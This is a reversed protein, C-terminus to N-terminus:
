IGQERRWAEIEEPTPPFDGGRDEILKQVADEDAKALDEAQKRAQDLAATVAEPKVTAAFSRSTLVNLADMQRGLIEVHQQIVTIAGLTSRIARLEQHLMLLASVLAPDLGPPLEIAEGGSARYPSGGAGETVQPTEM